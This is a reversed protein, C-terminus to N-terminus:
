ETTVKSARRSPVTQSTEVEEDREHTDTDTHPSHASHLWGQRDARRPSGLSLFARLRQGGSCFGSLKGVKGFSSVTWGDQM